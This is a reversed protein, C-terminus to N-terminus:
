GGVTGRTTQRVTGPGAGTHMATMFSIGALCLSGQCRGYSAGTRKRVGEVSTAPIAGTLANEIEAASVHECACVIQGYLPDRDILEQPDDVSRIRPFRPLVSIADGREEADLGADRLLDLALDAAAPSISVGASRDTMHLLGPVTRDFRLRHQEDGAPRNAAFTKIVYADVISPVLRGARAIVSALTEPDTARDDADELDDATPGVLVSGHTTPIVNVGKTDPMHTSFVITSLREGFARDLVVYQGKRPWSVLTEGGALESVAGAAVGSANVVYTATRRGSTSTVTWASGDHQLGTVRDGFRFEVGNMAALRAYGATLRMPDIIGEDPLTLGAVVSPNALPEMALVAARDILEARAGCAHADDLTHRLREAEADDLAIMVAGTRRYPVDLRECLEDWRGVSSTILETELIGPPGYYSVAVGANGKTAHEAVDTEAELLLVRATTRGLREALATGLVGAGIIVVDYSATTMM